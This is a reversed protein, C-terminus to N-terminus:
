ENQEVTLIAALAAEFDACQIPMRLYVDAGEVLSRAEEDLRSCAIVPIEWVERDAKLRRLTRWGATEPQDMELEIAFPKDCRALVLVNEGLDALIIQRAKTRVFRHM